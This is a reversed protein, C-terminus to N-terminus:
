SVGTRKWWGVEKGTTGSLLLAAWREGWREAGGERVEHFSTSLMRAEWGRVGTEEVPSQRHGAKNPWGCGTWVWGLWLLESALVAM